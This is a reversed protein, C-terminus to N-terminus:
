YISVGAGRGWSLVEKRNQYSVLVKNSFHTFNHLLPNFDPILIKIYIYKYINHLHVTDLALM